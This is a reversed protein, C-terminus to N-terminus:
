VLPWEFTINAMPNLEHVNVIHAEQTDATGAPNHVQAMYGWQDVGAGVSIFPSTASNFFNFKAGTMLTARYTNTHSSNDVSFTLPTIGAAVNGEQYASLSSDARLLQAQINVFMSVKQTFYYNLNNGFGFGYYKTDVSETINNVYPNDSDHKWTVSSAYDQDLSTYVLGMFPSMVLHPNSTENEGRYYLNVNQYHMGSHFHFNSLNYTTGTGSPRELVGSGDIAWVAGDNLTPNNQSYGRNFFSWDVEANAENGFVSSLFHNNFHYGVDVTPILVYQNSKASVIATDQIGKISPSGENFVPTKFYEYTASAGMYFHKEPSFLVQKLTNNPASVVASDTDSSVDAQSIMPLGILGISTLSLSSLLTLKKMISVKRTSM